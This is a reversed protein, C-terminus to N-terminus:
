EREYRFRWPGLDIIEGGELACWERPEVPRDNVRTSGPRIVLLDVPGDGATPVYLRVHEPFLGEGALLVDARAPHTGVIVRDVPRHPNWPSRTRRLALSAGSDLSDGEHLLNRVSADADPHTGLFILRRSSM